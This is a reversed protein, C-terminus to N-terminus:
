PSNDSASPARWAVRRLAHLGQHQGADAAALLRHPQRGRLPRAAQPRKVMHGRAVHARQRGAVVLQAHALGAGGPQQRRLGRQTRRAGGRCPECGSATEPTDRM